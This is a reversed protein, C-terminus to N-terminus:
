GMYQLHSNNMCAGKLAYAVTYSYPINRQQKRNKDTIMFVLLEKGPTAFFKIVNKFLPHLM